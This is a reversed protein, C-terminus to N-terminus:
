EITKRRCNNLVEFSKLVTIFPIVPLKFHSRKTPTSHSIKHHTLLILDQKVKKKKTQCM